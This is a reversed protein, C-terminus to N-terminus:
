YLTPENELERKSWITSGDTLAAYERNVIAHVLDKSDAIRRNFYMGGGLLGTNHIDSGATMALNNKKAYEFAHENFMPNYHNGEPNTHASNIIEVADSYEPYLRIEPIYSEERYPHVHIVIGGDKKVIQFQEEISAEKIEPHSLLWEKDLGLIIFETGRYCAEWGFFVDVGIRDGEAKANEYGKCFEKVFDEWSLSRDIATNGKWNHDTIVVGTYGAEKAACIMEAATNKGCKSGESTHLHTEYKYLM